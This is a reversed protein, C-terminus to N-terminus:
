KEHIEGVAGQQMAPPMCRLTAWWFLLALLSVGAGLACVLAGLARRGWTTLAKM